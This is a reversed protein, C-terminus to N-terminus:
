VMFEMPKEKTQLFFSLDLPPLKDIFFAFQEHAEYEKITEGSKWTVPHSFIPMSQRNCMLWGLAHGFDFFVTKDEREFKVEWGAFLHPGNEKAKYISHSTIEIKKSNLFELFQNNIRLSKVENLEDFDLHIHFGKTIFKFPNRFQYQALEMEGKKILQVREEISLIRSSRTDIVQNESDRPPNFFFQTNQEIKKGFWIINGQNELGETLLDEELNPNHMLPHIYAGLGCHNISMFAAALGLKGLIDSQLSEVRLEWMYNLHPGYGPKIADDFDIKVGHEELFQKCRNQIVLAKAFDEFTVEQHVHFGWIKSSPDVGCNNNSQSMFFKNQM